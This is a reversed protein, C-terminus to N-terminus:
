DVKAGSEKVVKAWMTLDRDIVQKFQEPTGGLPVAGQAQLRQSYENSKLAANIKQNLDAIVDGPTGAPAVVGFWTVADFGPYGSEAITPVDPLQPSRQASTVALARLAGAQIQPLATTVSGMFIDVQGGLLDNLAASFGKYPIHQTKFNATLQLLESALHAVTGNGPSASNVKGPNARAYEILDSLTKFKSNTPVIIVVPSSAVLAVPAFDKRTNYSLKEQLAPTITLNSTQGLGITYGDPRAKAVADMGLSGGAGARNDPVFTWNPQMDSIALAMGRAIIDTGGGPPFPVVLRIPRDPYSQAMTVGVPALVSAAIAAGVVLHKM